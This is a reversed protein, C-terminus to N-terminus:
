TPGGTPLAILTRCLAAARDPDSMIADTVACAMGAARVADARDRDAEDVVLTTAFTRYLAAVGEVSADHGLETLMRDAPGKLASGAVIPSVAITDARRERLASALAPFALLPGISVLPNSPAVIIREADRIADLVAATPAVRDVGDFRVSTVPVSHHRGVFYEQFSVEREIGDPDVVTVLTAVPTDAAPLVRLALGWARAIEATVESLTAGEGLRHTRYLHTALDKDGLGFWTGGATSGEPRVAEFRRLAEMAHWTEGALGWGRGPDIAAAVTYVVTDIDPSISLGHMVTDDGINVIATIEDPPVVRVLGALLRAAGVGGALVTIM